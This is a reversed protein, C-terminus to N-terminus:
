IQETGKHIRQRLLKQYLWDYIGTLIIFVFLLSGLPLILIYFPGTLDKFFRGNHIEFLYNWLPLSSNAKIANPMQFRQGRTAHGVPLLGQEHTTIFEEGQPTKFYGTVMFKGPRTSSIGTAEKNTLIDIAKGTTREQHFIGNFSGVLFGGTGYPEFVTTGMVFVPASLTKRFFPKKFNAPGTWFGDTCQILIQDEVADYLANQIKEVWQNNELTGPYFKASIEKGALAVLLPPRMFLGTGGIVFLIASVWIGIKLHYKFMWKFLKRSHPNTLLKSSKKRHRQWPFYWTYFASISLFFIILGTADFLLKGALGWVKGNHLDFFLKVLSVKMRQEKRTLPAARFHIQDPQLPSTYVHSPTFAMLNSKVKLIKLVKERETGLLIQQWEETDLQCKYLGGDTAAFLLNQKELLLINRTKKYYGSTPFGHMMSHFTKGGDETKWVGLKGAAYAINPHQKRYLLNILSSRNWNHTHYQPPLLWSPVSIASILGPHNMLIGSISMWIMFLILVLGVYKHLWKSKQFLNQISGPKRRLVSKHDNLVIM